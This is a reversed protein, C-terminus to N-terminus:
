EVSSYGMLALRYALRELGRADLLREGSRGKVIAGVARLEYYARLVERGRRGRLAKLHKKTVPSGPKVGLSRVRAMLGELLSRAAEDGGIRALESQILREDVKIVSSLVWSAESVELLQSGKLSSYTRVIQAAMVIEGTGVRHGQRRLNDALRPLSEILREVSIRV